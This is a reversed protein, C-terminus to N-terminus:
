VPGWATGNHVDLCHTTLNYIVMGETPTLIADRQTTTMRPPMFAKTTSAVDLIANANPSTGIGVNGSGSLITLKATGSGFNGYCFLYAHDLGSGAMGVQWGGSGGVKHQIFAAATSAYSDLIQPIELAASQKVDLRAGPSAQGIGLAGTLSGGALPLAEIDSLVEAPTRPVLADTGNGKLYSGTAVTSLGTGGNAVPILIEDDLKALTVSGDPLESPNGAGEVTTSGEQAYYAAPLADDQKLECSINASFGQEFNLTQQFVCTSYSAGARNTLTVRDGVHLLPDGRWRINMGRLTLGTFHTKLGDAISQLVTSNYSTSRTYYHGYHVSVSELKEYAGSANRYYYTRNPNVATGAPVVTYTYSRTRYFFPNGSLIITNNAAEATGSAIASEVSDNESLKLKIRNFTFTMEDDTLEMYQTTDLTHTSTSVYSPVVQYQGNRGVRLFCGGVACTYALAQRLTLGDGWKPMVGISISTNCALTDYDTDLTIGAQAIIYDFIQQVTRPYEQEDVFADVMGYLLADSGTLVIRSQGETYATKEVVFTGIDEYDYAGSHFVGLQLTVTAGVIPLNGRLSGGYTWEGDTNVLSLNLRSSVAAGLPLSADGEDVSWAMIHASTLAVEAGGICTITGKVDLNRWQNLIAGSYALADTVDLLVEGDVLTFAGKHHTIVLEGNVIAYSAYPTDQADSLILDWLLPTVTFQTSIAM